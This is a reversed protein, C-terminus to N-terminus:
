GRHRGGPLPCRYCEHAASASPKGDWTPSPNGDVVPSSQYKDSNAGKPPLMGYTSTKLISVASVSHTRDNKVIFGYRSPPGASRASLRGSCRSELFSNETVRKRFQGALIPFFFLRASHIPFILRGAGGYRRSLPPHERPTHSASGDPLAEM